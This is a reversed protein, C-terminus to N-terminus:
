INVLDFRPTKTRPKGHNELRQEVSLRLVKPRGSAGIEFRYGRERLWRIQDSPRKYDTLCFLELQSLFM